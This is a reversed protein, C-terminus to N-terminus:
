KLQKVLKIEISTLYLKMTETQNSPFHSYLNNFSRLVGVVVSSNFPLNVGFGAKIGWDFKNVLDKNDYEQQIDDFFGGEGIVIDVTGKDFGGAFYAIYPGMEMYTKSGKLYKINPSYEIYNFLMNGNVNATYYTPVKISEDMPLPVLTDNKYTKGYLAGNLRWSFYHSASWKESFSHNFQLGLSPLLKLKGYSDESFENPMPGGAGAGIYISFSHQSFGSFSILIFLIILYRKIM